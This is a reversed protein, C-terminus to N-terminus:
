VHLIEVPKRDILDLVVLVYRVRKGAYHPISEEPDGKRLREFRKLAFPQLSDDDDVLLVRTSLGM